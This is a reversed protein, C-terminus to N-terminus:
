QQPGSFEPLAPGSAQRYRVGLRHVAQRTWTGGARNLRGSRNLRDAVERSNLGQLYLSLLARLTMTEVDDPVLKGAMVAYGYPPTPTRSDAGGKMRAETNLIVEAAWDAVLPRLSELLNNVIDSM